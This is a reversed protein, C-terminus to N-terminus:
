PSSSAPLKVPLFNSELKPIGKRTDRAASEVKVEVTIRCNEQYEGKRLRWVEGVSISYETNYHLWSEANDWIEEHDM